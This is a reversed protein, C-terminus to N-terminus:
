EDPLAALPPEAEAFLGAEWIERFSRPALAPLARERTWAGLPPLGIALRGRRVFPRSLLRGARQAFRYLRPRSMVRAFLRFALREWRSSVAAEASKTRIGVLMDHLPIKVPCAEFCAGCLSSAQAVEGWEGLGKYLPTLVAGIPGSYVWGYAHGGIQRYVPCVNLCAGCRICNL